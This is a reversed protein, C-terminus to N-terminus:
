HRARRQRAAEYVVLAAAVAVNLSEVPSVMPITMPTDAASLLEDPLGGGESGFLIAVPGGLDCEPLPMGDRAITAFVKLGHPRARAIADALSQKSIVPLRFTSGMAGRLAKWGFPDATADSCVVGTAGCGEAARITAGVNGPDQVGSLMVVLAPRKAFVDDLSIAPKAAIAVIGSPERVPSIAALVQDSVDFIEADGREAARMLETGDVRDGIAVTEIRIGSRVAESVLHEGDLLMLDPHRGRAVDRFRKVVANQRSSIRKLMSTSQLRHARDILLRCDYILL